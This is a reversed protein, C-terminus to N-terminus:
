RRGRRGSWILWIEAVIVSALLLLMLADGISM